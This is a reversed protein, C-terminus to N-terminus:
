KSFLRQLWTKNIVPNINEVTKEEEETNDESVPNEFNHIMKYNMTEMVKLNKRETMLMLQQQQDLLQHLETIQKNKANLEEILLNRESEDQIWKEQLQEQVIEKIYEKIAEENALRNKEEGPEEHEYSEENMKEIKNQGTSDKDSDTLDKVTEKGDVKALKENQLVLAIQKALEPDYTFEPKVLESETLIKNQNEQNDALQSDEIQSTARLSSENSDKERDLPTDTMFSKLFKQQDPTFVLKREDNYVKSEPPIKKAHYYILQRTVDLEDAFQQATLDKSM